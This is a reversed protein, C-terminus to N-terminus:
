AAIGVERFLENMDRRITEYRQDLPARHVPPRTIKRGLAGALLPRIVHQRLILLAALARLAQPCAHYRRSRPLKSVLGKGRLKRLDYAARSTQYGPDGLSVRVRQAVDSARFGRPLVSLALVSEIVARVRAQNLDVGGLRARGVQSPQPLTDLLGPEIFTADVCDVVEVFRDVMHRLAATIRACHEISSGCRLDRTNHAMAEIRLVREGKTHIKLTL